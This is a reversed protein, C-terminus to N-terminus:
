QGALAPDFASRRKVAERRRVNPYMMCNLVKFRAM